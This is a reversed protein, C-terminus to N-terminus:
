LLLRTIFDFKMKEVKHPPNEDKHLEPLARQSSGKNSSSKIVWPHFGLVTLLFMHLKGMSTTSFPLFIFLWNSGDKVSASLFYRM